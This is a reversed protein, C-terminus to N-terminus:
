MLLFINEETLKSEQVNRINGFKNLRSCLNLYFYFQFNGWHKSIRSPLKSSSPLSLDVQFPKQYFSIPSTSPSCISSSEQLHKKHNKNLNIIKTRLQLLKKKEKKKSAMKKREETAKEFNKMSFLTM